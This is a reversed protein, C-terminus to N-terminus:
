TSTNMNTDRDLHLQKNYHVSQDWIQHTVTQSNFTQERPFVCKMTLTLLKIHKSLTQFSNDLSAKVIIVQSWSYQTCWDEHHSDHTYTHTQQWKDTHADMHTHKHQNISTFSSHNIQIEVLRKYEKKERTEIETEGELGWISYYM